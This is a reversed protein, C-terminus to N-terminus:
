GSQRANAPSHLATVKGRAMALFIASSGPESGLLSHCCPILGLRPCLGDGGGKGKGCECTSRPMAIPATSWSRGSAWTLLQDTCCTATSPPCCSHPSCSSPTSGCWSSTSAPGGCTMTSPARCPSWTPPSPTLVEPYMGAPLWSPSCTLPAHGVSWNQVGWACVAPGALRSPEWRPLSKVTRGGLGSSFPCLTICGTLHTTCRRAWRCVGSLLQAM